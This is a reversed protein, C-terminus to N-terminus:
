RSATVENSQALEQRTADWFGGRAIASRLDAQATARFWGGAERRVRQEPDILENPTERDSSYISVTRTQPDILWGLEVQNRLYTQM